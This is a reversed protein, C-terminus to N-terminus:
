YNDDDLPAWQELLGPLLQERIVARLDNQGIMGEYLMGGIVLSPTNRIGAARAAAAAGAAEAAHRPPDTNICDLLRHGDMGIADAAAELDEAHLTRVRGSQLLQGYHYDWLEWYADQEEACYLMQHTLEVSTQDANRLDYLDHFVVAVDDPLEQRIGELGVATNACLRSQMSCFLHVVVRPREAGRHHGATALAGLRIPRPARLPPRRNQGPIGDIAGLTIRPAPRELDLGRLLHAYLRSPPVGRDLLVRARQYAEDYAQELRDRDPSAAIERGNFLMTGNMNRVSRQRMLARSREITDHYWDDLAAREAREFDVGARRCLEILGDRTNLPPAGPGPRVVQDLLEFFRGEANAELAISALQGPNVLHHRIRLRRPHDQSLQLLRAWLTPLQGQWRNTELTYFFDVTVPADALGWVPVAVPQRHEIVPHRERAPAAGGGPDARGDGAAVLGAAALAAITVLGRVRSLM